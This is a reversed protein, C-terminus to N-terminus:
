IFTKDKRLIKFSSEMNKCLYCCSEVFTLVLFLAFVVWGFGKRNRRKRSHCKAGLLSSYKIRIGSLKHLFEM